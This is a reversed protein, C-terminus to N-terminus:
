ASPPRAGSAKNRKRIAELEGKLALRDARLAQNDALCDKGGKNDAFRWSRLVVDVEERKVIVYPAIDKLFRLAKAGMLQTVHTYGCVPGKHKRKYVNGGWRDAVWVLPRCDCQSLNVTLSIPECRPKLTGSHASTRGKSVYVSGEADFFGAAYSAEDTTVERLSGMHKEISHEKPREADVLSACVDHSKGYHMRVIKALGGKVVTHPELKALVEVAETGTVQWMTTRKTQYIHGGVYNVIRNLAEKLNGDRLSIAVTLHKSPGILTIWGDGDLLGALYSHNM